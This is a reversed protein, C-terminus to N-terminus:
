LAPDIRKKCRKCINFDKETLHEEDKTPKVGGDAIWQLEDCYGTEIICKMMPCEVNEIIKAM